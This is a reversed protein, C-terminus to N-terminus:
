PQFSITAQLTHFLYLSLNLLPIIEREVILNLLRHVVDKRPHSYYAKFLRQCMERNPALRIIGRPASCLDQFPGIYLVREYWLLDKYYPASSAILSWLTAM